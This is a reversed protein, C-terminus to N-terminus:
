SLPLATMLCRLLGDETPEDAVAIRNQFRSRGAEAIRGSLCIFLTNEIAQHLDDSAIGSLATVTEVSTLLVSAFSGGAAIELINDTSHSVSITDYVEILEFKIASNQLFLELDARRVRGALYLVHSDPLIIKGLRDVLGAVNGGATEVQTLGADRAAVATGEGTVVVQVSALTARLEESLHHFAQPSTAVVLDPKATLLKQSLAVTQTLPLLVPEYGLGALRAATRDAGPQPRTVLVRVGSM